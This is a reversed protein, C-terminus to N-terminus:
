GGRSAHRPGGPSLRHVSRRAGSRAGRPRATAPRRSQRHLRRWRHGTDRTPEYPGRSPSSKAYTRPLAIIFLVDSVATVGKVPREGSTTRSAAAETPRSTSP